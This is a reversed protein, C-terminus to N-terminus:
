RFVMDRVPRGKKQCFSVFLAYYNDRIFQKRRYGLREAAGSVGQPTGELEVYNGIPTEDIMVNVLHVQGKKEGPIRIQYTTRYQQYRFFVKYGLKQFLKLTEAPDCETELEERIKFSRHVRVPGKYTLYGKGDENRVRLLLGKDSLRTQPLDLVFNDEFKREAVRRPRLGALKELFEKLDQVALKIEVETQM